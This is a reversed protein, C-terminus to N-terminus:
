SLVDFKTQFIDFSFSDTSLDGCSEFKWSSGFDCEPYGFYLRIDKAKEYM